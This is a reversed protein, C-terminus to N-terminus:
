GINEIERKIKYSIPLEYWWRSTFYQERDFATFSGKLKGLFASTM